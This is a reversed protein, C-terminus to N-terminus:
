FRLRKLIVTGVVLQVVIAFTIDLAIAVSGFM